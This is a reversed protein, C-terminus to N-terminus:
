KTKPLYKVVCRGQLDAAYLFGCTDTAIDGAQGCGEPGTVSLVERGTGGDYVLIANRKPDCAFVREGFSAEIDSIGEVKASWKAVTGDRRITSANGSRDVAYLTGEPGAALLRAGSPVAAAGGRVESGDLAFAKSPRDPFAVYVTDGSCAIDCGGAAEAGPAPLPKGRSSFRMLGKRADLVWVAGERDAAVDTIEEFIGPGGIRLWMWGRPSICRIFRGVGKADHEVAFIWGDPSAAVRALVPPVVRKKEGTLGGSKMVGLFVGSAADYCDLRSFASDIAYLRGARDSALRRGDFLQGFGKGAGGMKLGPIPAGDRGYARITQDSADLVFINGTSTELDIDAPKADKGGALPFEGAFRGGLFRLVVNRGADLVFTEISTAALAVPKSMRGMGDGKGGFRRMERGDPGYEIIMGLDANLALVGQSPTTAFDVTGRGPAFEVIPNRSAFDKENRFRLIKGSGADLIYLSDGEAAMRSRCLAPEVASWKQFFTMDEDLKLVGENEPDLIYANDEDDFCADSVALFPVSGMHGQFELALIRSDASVGGSEVEVPKAAVEQGAPTIAAASVRYTGTAAPAFWRNKPSATRRKELTGGTCSWAFSMPQRDPNTVEFSITIPEGAFVRKQTVAARLLKPPRPPALSVLGGAALVKADGERVAATCETEGVERAELILVPAASEPVVIRDGVLPMAVIFSPAYAAFKIGEVLGDRLGGGIRVTEGAASRVPFQPGAGKRPPLSACPMGPKLDSASGSLLVARSETASVGVVKLAAVPAEKSLLGLRYLPVRVALKERYVLFIRGESVGHESGASLTAEEGAAVSISALVTGAPSGGEGSSKASPQGAPEVSRISMGGTAPSLIIRLPATGEVTKGITPVEIRFKWESEITMGGDGRPERKKLEHRSEAVRAEHRRFLDMDRQLDAELEKAEPDLMRALAVANGQTIAQDAQLLLKAAVEGRVAEEAKKRLEAVEPLNRYLEPLRNILAVAAASDGKDVAERINRLLDSAKGEADLFDECSKVQRAVHDSAPAVARLARYLELAERYNKAELARAARAELGRAEDLRKRIEEVEGGPPAIAAASEMDVKAGAFDGKRLKDKAGEVFGALKIRSDNAQNLLLQATQYDRGAEVPVKSLANAAEEWKRAAIAEKGIRILEAVKRLSEKQGDLTAKIRDALDLYDPDLDEARRFEKLAGEFDGAELLRVGERYPEDLEPKPPLKWDAASWSPMKGESLSVERELPKYGRKEVRITYKGPPLEIDEMPCDRQIGGQIIKVSSVGPLFDKLKSLPLTATKGAAAIATGQTGRGAGGGAGGADTGGDRGGVLLAIGIVAGAAVLLAAAAAAFVAARRATPVQPSAAAPAWAGPAGAVITAQGAPGPDPVGTRAPTAITADRLVPAGVTGGAGAQGAILTRELAAPAASAGAAGAQVTRPLGLAPMATADLAAETPSVGGGASAGRKKRGLRALSVKKAEPGLDLSDLAHLLANADPYRDEPRKALMKHVIRAVADPVDPRLEKLPKPEEYIHKYILAAMGDAQFPPRGALCEYFVCGLSYLDSRGDVEKGEGQEPSMYTPTGMIFGTQTLSSMGTTAKALGFDMVKVVGRGSVMINAPKIDRHVISLEAAMALARAVSRIIEVIEPLTPMAEAQGDLIQQLDLGEVFEMAFYPIGEYTSITYIQIINPHILKAANQAERYFRAKFEENQASAAPLIKLAVDRDLGVQRAKFVQGMGGEGLKKELIFDGIRIPEAM